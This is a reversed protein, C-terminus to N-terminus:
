GEQVHGECVEDVFSAPAKPPTLGLDQTLQLNIRANRVWLYELRRARALRMRLLTLDSVSFRKPPGDLVSLDSWIDLEESNWGKMDEILQYYLEMTRREPVPFHVLVQAAEQAQREETQFGRGLHGAVGSVQSTMGTRAVKAILADVEAMHRDMCGAVAVREALYLDDGLIERHLALRAKSVAEEWHFAEVAQELGLAILIGCTITAIEVLFERLSHAAKPKHIEM